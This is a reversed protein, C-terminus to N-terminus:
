PLTFIFCFIWSRINWFPVSNKTSPPTYEVSNLLLVFTIFWLCLTLYKNLYKWYNKFTQFIILLDTMAFATFCGTRNTYTIQWQSRLSAVQTIQWPLRDNRVCHLLRHSKLFNIGNNTNKRGIVSAFAFALSIHTKAKALTTPSFFVLLPMLSANAKALTTPSFFVLLPMLSQKWVRNCWDSLNSWQTRLSLTAFGM